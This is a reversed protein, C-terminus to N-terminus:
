KVEFSYQKDYEQLISLTMTKKTLNYLASWQTHSTNEAPNSATSVAKLLEMGEEENLKNDKATLTEKMKLYRAKGHSSAGGLWENDALAPDVYFNTVYNYGEGQLVVTQDPYIEASVVGDKFSYEVIAFDGTADAIFFHNNGKAPTEM